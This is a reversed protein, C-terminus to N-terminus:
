IDYQYVDFIVDIHCIKSMAANQVKECKEWNYWFSPWIKYVEPDFSQIYIVLYM